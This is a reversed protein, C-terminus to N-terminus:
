LRAGWIQMTPPGTRYADVRLVDSSSECASVTAAPVASETCDPEPYVEALFVRAHQLDRAAGGAHVAAFVPNLMARAGHLLVNSDHVCLQLSAVHDCLM